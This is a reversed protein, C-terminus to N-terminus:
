FSELRSKLTGTAIKGSIDRLIREVTTVTNLISQLSPDELVARELGAKTETAKHHFSEVTASRYQFCPGANAGLSADSNELVPLQMLQVALTTFIGQMLPVIVTYYPDPDIPSSFLIQLTNIMLGYADNFLEALERTWHSEFQEISPNPIMPYVAGLPIKGDAIDKFKFYHSLDLPTGLIPGYTDDSRYGYHNYTGYPQKDQYEQKPPTAGEGQQVIQEIAQKATELSNVYIAKGGGSGFYLDTRQIGPGYKEFLDPEAKVCNEFGKEIAKYFQGITVFNEDQPPANYPAPKEIEMFVQQMLDTSAAMLQVYPGGPPNQNFIYGPYSPILPQGSPSVFMPHGGIANVLNSALNLHLMEELVVSRLTQFAQTTVDQISYLACLYPPITSFELLAAKQLAAILQERTEIGKSPASIYKSIDIRPQKSSYIQAEIKSIAM